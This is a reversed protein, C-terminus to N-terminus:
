SRTREQGWTKGTKLKTVESSLTEPLRILKLEDKPGAKGLSLERTNGEGGSLRRLPALLLRNKLRSRGDKWSGSRFQLSAGGAMDRVGESQADSHKRLRGPKETM